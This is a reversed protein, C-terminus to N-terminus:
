LSSKLKAQSKPLRFGPYPNPPRGRLIPRVPLHARLDRLRPAAM